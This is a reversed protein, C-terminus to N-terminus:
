EGGEPRGSDGHSQSCPRGGPWLGLLADFLVLDGMVMAEKEKGPTFAAWSTLGMFPPKRWEDVAIKVDARPSTIKFVSEAPTWAGKRGTIQEIRNTDLSAAHASPSGPLGFFSCLLVISIAQKKM